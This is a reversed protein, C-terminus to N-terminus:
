RAHKTLSALLRLVLIAAVIWWVVSMGPGRSPERPVPGPWAGRRHPRRVGAAAGMASVADLYRRRIEADAAEAERALLRVRALEEEFRAAAAPTGASEGVACTAEALGRVLRRTAGSGDAPRPTEDM